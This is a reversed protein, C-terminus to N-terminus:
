RVTCSRARTRTTRATERVRGDRARENMRRVALRAASLPHARGEGTDFLDEGGTRENCFRAHKERNGSSDQAHRPLLPPEINSKLFGRHKRVLHRTCMGERRRVCLARRNLPLRPGEAEAM